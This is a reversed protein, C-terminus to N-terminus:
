RGPCYQLSTPWSNLKTFYYYHHDLCYKLSKNPKRSRGKLWGPIKKTKICIKICIQGNKLRKQGLFGLNERFFM